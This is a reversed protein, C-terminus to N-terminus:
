FILHHLFSSSTRYIMKFTTRGGSLSFTIFNTLRGLECVLLYPFLLFRLNLVGQLWRVGHFLIPGCWLKRSNNVLDSLDMRLVRVCIERVKSNHAERGLSEHPFLSLSPTYQKRRASALARRKGRPVRSAVNLPVQCSLHAFNWIYFSSVTSVSLACKSGESFCKREFKTFSAFTYM